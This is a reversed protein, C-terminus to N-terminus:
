QYIKEETLDYSNSILFTRIVELPKNPFDKDPSLSILFILYNGVIHPKISETDKSLYYTQREELYIEISDIGVCIEFFQLQVFKTENPKRKTKGDRNL